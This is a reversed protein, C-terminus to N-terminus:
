LYPKGVDLEIKSWLFMWTIDVFSDVATKEVIVVRLIAYLAVILTLSFIIVPTIKRRLPLKVQWLLCLPLSLVLLADALCSELSFTLILGVQLM